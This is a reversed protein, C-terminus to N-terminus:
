KLWSPNKRGTPKKIALYVSKLLELFEDFQKQWDAEGAAKRQLNERIEKQKLLLENKKAFYTEKDFVEDMYADALKALRTEINSLEMLFQKRIEEDRKPEDKQFNKAETQLM